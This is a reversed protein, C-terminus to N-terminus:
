SGEHPSEPAFDAYEVAVDLLVAKYFDALLRAGIRRDVQYQLDLRDFKAPYAAPDM